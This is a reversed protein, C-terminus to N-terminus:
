TRLPHMWAFLVQGQSEAIRALDALGTLMDLVTEEDWGSAEFEETAALEMAVAALADEDLGALRAALEDALRLVLAEGTTSFYVPEYLLAADDFLNGTLVCHLTAIKAIDLGRLSIGSWEGVPELSEGIADLEDEDASIINSLLAM